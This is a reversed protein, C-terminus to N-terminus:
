WLEGPKFPVTDKINQHWAETFFPYVVGEETDDYNENDSLAKAIYIRVTEKDDAELKLCYFDGELIRKYSLMTFAYEMNNGIASATLNQLALTFRKQPYSSKLWETLKGAIFRADASTIPRPHPNYLKYRGIITYGKALLDAVEVPGRQTLIYHIENMCSAAEPLPCVADQQKGAEWEILKYSAVLSDKGFVVLLDKGKCPDIDLFKYEVDIEYLIHLTSDNLVVGNSSNRYHSEGLLNQVDRYTMGAKLRNDMVDDVMYKRSHYHGDWEDWGKRDFPVAREGTCGTQLSVFLFFGSVLCSIKM